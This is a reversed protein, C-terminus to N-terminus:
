DVRPAHSNFAFQAGAIGRSTRLKGGVREGETGARAVNELSFASAVARKIGREGKKEEGEWAGDRTGPSNAIAVGATAGRKPYPSRAILVGSAPLTPRDAIDRRSRYNRAIAISTPSGKKFPDCHHITLRRSDCRRVDRARTRHFRRSVRLERKRTTPQLARTRACPVFSYKERRSASM